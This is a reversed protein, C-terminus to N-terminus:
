SASAPLDSSTLLKLCAQGIHCFRMEVLFVFILQAHHCTGATGAVQSASAPSSSSGLLCLNFHASITDSFELRLLLTLSGDSRLYAESSPAVAAATTACALQDVHVASCLVGGVGGRRWQGQQLGLVKPPRPPRVVQPRSNSVLRVLMSFGRRQVWSAFITTLPSQAMTSWGPRCSHFETWFCTIEYNELSSTQFGCPLAM